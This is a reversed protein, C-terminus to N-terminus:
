TPLAMLNVGAPATVTRVSHTSSVAAPASSRKSTWSVPMPMAGSTNGRSNVAKSCASLEVLRWYPPVPRPRAMTRWSARRIPPSAPALLRGPWPLVKQNM